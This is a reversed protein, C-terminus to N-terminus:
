EQDLFELSSAIRLTRSRASTVINRPAAAQLLDSSGAGAAGSAADEAAEDSAALGAAAALGASADLGAAAALGAM